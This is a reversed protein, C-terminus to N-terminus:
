RVLMMLAATRLKVSMCWNGDYYWERQNGWGGCGTGCATGNGGVCSHESNPGVQKVPCFAHAYSEGNWAGFTVFGRESEGRNNPCQEAAFGAADGTDYTIPVVLCQHNGGGNNLVCHAAYLQQM